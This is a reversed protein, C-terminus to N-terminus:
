ASHRNSYMKFDLTSGLELHRCRCQDVFVQRRVCVCVCLSLIWRMEDNIGTLVLEDDPGAVSCSNIM